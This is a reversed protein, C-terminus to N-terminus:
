NTGEKLMSASGTISKSSSIGAYPISLSTFGVQGWTTTVKVRIKAQPAATTIDTPSTSVTYDSSSIGAAQMVNNVATTVDANAATQPIAARVGAQAAGVLTNKVFFFYGYDIAGFTLMLLVPLILVMQLTSAGRRSRRRLVM